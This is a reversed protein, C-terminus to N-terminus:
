PMPVKIRLQVTIAVIGIFYVLVVVRWGSGSSERELRDCFSRFRNSRATLLGQFHVFVYRCYQRPDESSPIYSRFENSTDEM